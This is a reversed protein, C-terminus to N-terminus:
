VVNTLSTISGPDKSFTYMKTMRKGRVERGAGEEWEITKELLTWDRLETIRQWESMREVTWHHGIVYKQVAHLPVVIWYRVDATHAEHTHSFVKKRYCRYFALISWHCDFCDLNVFLKEGEGDCPLKEMEEKMKVSSLTERGRRGTWKDCQKGLM